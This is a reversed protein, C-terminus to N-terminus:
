RREGHAATHYLSGIRQTKCKNVPELHGVAARLRGRIIDRRALEKVDNAFLVLGALAREFQQAPAQDRVAALVGFPPALRDVRTGFGDRPKRCKAGSVCLAAADHGDITKKLPARDLARPCLLGEGDRHFVARREGNATDPLVPTVRLAAFPNARHRNDGHRRVLQDRLDV